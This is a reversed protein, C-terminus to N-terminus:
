PADDVLIHLGLSRLFKGLSSRLRQAPGAALCPAPHGAGGARSRADADDRDFAILVRQTGRQRLAALHEGTFGEVGYLLREPM